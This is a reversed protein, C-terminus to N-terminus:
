GSSALSLPLWTPCVKLIERCLEIAEPARNLELLCLTAKKLTEADAPSRELAARYDDVAEQIKGVGNYADGRAVRLTAADPALRLAEGFCEIAKWPEHLHLLAQGANPHSELTPQIQIARRYSTVADEFRGLAKQCHARVTWGALSAAHQQIARDAMAVGADFQGGQFKCEALSAWGDAHDPFKETYITFHAEADTRRNLERECVAINFLIDPDERRPDRIQELLGLARSHNLVVAHMLACLRKLETNGPQQRCLAECEAIAQARQGERFKRKLAEM